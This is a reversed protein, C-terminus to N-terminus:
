SSSEVELSYGLLDPVWKSINGDLRVAYAVSNIAGVYIGVVGHASQNKRRISVMPAGSCGDGAIMSLEYFSAGRYIRSPLERTIRRRVHGKSYIMDPRQPPIQDPSTQDHKTEEAVEHPYGWVEYDCSAHESISLAQRLDWM